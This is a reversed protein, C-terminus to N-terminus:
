TSLLSLCVNIMFNLMSRHVHTFATSHSFQTSSALMAFLVGM